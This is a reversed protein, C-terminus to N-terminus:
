NVEAHGISYIDAVKRGQNKGICYMEELKKADVNVVNSFGRQSLYAESLKVVFLFARETM